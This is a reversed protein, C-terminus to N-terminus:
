SIGWTSPGYSQAFALYRRGYPTKLQQLNALTFNKAADQVVLTQGTSEDNSGSIVGSVFGNINWRSRAYAFFPLGNPNASSISGPVAPAGDLDSAFNILNDGALNYVALTYVDPIACLQRNVLDVAIRYAVGIVASTPPLIDPTVGMVTYIFNLFGYQTPGAPPTPLPGIGTQTVQFWGVTTVQAADVATWQTLYFGATLPVYDAHYLGVGDRVISSSIDIVPLNPPELQLAISTPDILNKNIDTVRVDITVTTGVTYGM